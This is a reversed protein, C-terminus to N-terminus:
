FNRYNHKKYDFSVYRFIRFLAIQFSKECKIFWRLKKNDIFKIIAGILNLAIKYRIM